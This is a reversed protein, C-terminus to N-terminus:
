HRITEVIEGGDLKLESLWSMGDAIMYLANERCEDFTEASEYARLQETIDAALKDSLDNIRDWIKDEEENEEPTLEDYRKALECLEAYDKKNEESLYEADLAGAIKYGNKYGNFPTSLYFSSYHDHIDFAKVGILEGEEEQMYMADEYAMNDIKEKLWSNNEALEKLEEISLDKLTKM